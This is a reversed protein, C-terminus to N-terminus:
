WEVHVCATLQLSQATAMLCDERRSCAAATASVSVRPTPAHAGLRAVDVSPAARLVCSTQRCAVVLNIMDGGRYAHTHRRRQSRRREGDARAAGRRLHLVAPAVHFLTSDSIDADVLPGFLSRRTPTPPPRLSRAGRTRPDHRFPVTAKVSPHRRKISDGLVGRRGGL